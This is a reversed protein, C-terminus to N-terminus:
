ATQLSCGYAWQGFNAPCGPVCSIGGMGRVFSLILPVISTLKRSHDSHNVLLILLVSFGMIKWLSKNEM